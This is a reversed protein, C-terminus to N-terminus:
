PAPKFLGRRAFKRDDQIADWYAIAPQRDSGFALSSYEGVVAAADVTTLLCALNANASALFGTLLRHEARLQEQSAHLAAQRAAVEGLKDWIDQLWKMAPEPAGPPTLPGQGPSFPAPAALLLAALIAPRTHM